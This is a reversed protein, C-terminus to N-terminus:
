DHRARQSGTGQVTWPVRWALGSSHTAEGKGLPDEWGLSQAWTERMAPPNKVQQAVLSAWSYQLLYGKGGGPSRGLGPILGLDGASCASEGASGWHPCGGFALCRGSGMYVFRGCCAPGCLCLAPARPTHPKRPTIFSPLPCPLRSAAWCQVGSGNM